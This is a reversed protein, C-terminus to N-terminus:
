RYELEKSLIVLYLTHRSTELPLVVGGDRLSIVKVILSKNLLFVNLIRCVRCKNLYNRNQLCDYKLCFNISCATGEVVIGRRALREFRGPSPHM